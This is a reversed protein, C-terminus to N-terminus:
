EEFAVFSVATGQAFCIQVPLILMRVDLGNKNVPRCSSSSSSSASVSRDFMPTFAFRAELCSNYKRFVICAIDMFAGWSM